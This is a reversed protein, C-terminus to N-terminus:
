RKEQRKFLYITRTGEPRVSILEWGGKGFQQNLIDILTAREDKSAPPGLDKETFGDKKMKERRESALYQPNAPEEPKVSVLEYAHVNGGANIVAKSGDVVLFSYRWEADSVTVALCSSALGLFIILTKM